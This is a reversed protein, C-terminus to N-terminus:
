SRWTGGNFSSFDKPGAANWCLVPSQDVGDHGSKMSRLGDMHVSVKPLYCWCVPFRMGTEGANWPSPLRVCKPHQCVCELGWAGKMEWNGPCPDRSLLLTLPTLTHTHQLVMSFSHCVPASGSNWEELSGLRLHLMLRCRQLPM